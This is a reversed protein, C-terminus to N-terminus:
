RAGVTWATALQAGGPAAQSEILPGAHQEPEQLPEGPVQGAAGYFEIEIREIFLRLKSARPCSTACTKFPQQRWVLAGTVIAASSSSDSVGSSLRALRDASPQHRM